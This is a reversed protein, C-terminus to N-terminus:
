FAWTRDFERNWSARLITELQPLSRPCLLQRDCSVLQWHQHLSDHYLLCLQTVSQPIGRAAFLEPEVIGDPRFIVFGIRSNWITDTQCLLHLTINDGWYLNGSTEIITKMEPASRIVTPDWAYHSLHPTIKRQAVESKLFKDLQGPQDLVSAALRRIDPARVGLAKGVAHFLCDGGGGCEIVRFHELGFITSWRWWHLSTLEIGEAGVMGSHSCLPRIMPHNDSTLVWFNKDALTVIMWRRGDRGTATEGVKFNSNNPDRGVKPFSNPDWTGCMQWPEHPFVLNLQSRSNLSNFFEQRQKSESIVDHFSM